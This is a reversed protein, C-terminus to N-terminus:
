SCKSSECLIPIQNGASVHSSGGEQQELELSGSAKKQGEHAGSHVCAVHMCLCVYLWM